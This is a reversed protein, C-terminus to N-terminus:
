MNKNIWEMFHKSNVAVALSNQYGKELFKDSYDWCIVRVASNDSFYYDMYHVKSEGTKDDIYDQNPSEFFRYTGKEFFNKLDSSIKKQDNLCQSINKGYYITGELAYIKFNNDNPKIIVGVDDYTKFNELELGIVAFSKNPYWNTLPSSKLLNEAKKKSVYNLLSDGVTMGEIEFESIEDAYSPSYIYLLALVLIKFLKKM